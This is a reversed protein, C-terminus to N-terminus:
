NGKDLVFDINFAISIREEDSTNEYTGHQLWSPFLIIDGDSPILEISQPSTRGEPFGANYVIPNPNNFGLGGQEASVRYYYIGSITYGPHSYPEFCINFKRTSLFDIKAKEGELKIDMNNFVKGPSDVKKKSNLLEFFDNRTKCNPNGV